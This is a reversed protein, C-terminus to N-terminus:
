EEVLQEECDMCMINLEKKGRVSFDCNPCSYKVPKKSAKPIHIKRAVKFAEKDLGMAEVKAKAEETLTVASWGIVPDANQHVYELERKACEIKFNETHYKSGKRTDKIGNIHCYLHIMEHHLTQIVELFPRALFEASINIEFFEQKEGDTWSVYPTFWGFTKTKSSLSVVRQSQISIAPTPLAGEYYMTNLLGFAKELEVTARKIPNNIETTTM